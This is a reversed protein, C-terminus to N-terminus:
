KVKTFPDLMTCRASVSREHMDSPVARVALVSPATEYSDDTLGRAPELNEEARSTSAAAITPADWFRTGDGLPLLDRNDAWRDIVIERRLRM